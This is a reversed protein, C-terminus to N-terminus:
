FIGYTSDVELQIIAVREIVEHVRTYRVLITGIMLIHTTLFHSCNDCYYSLSLMTINFYGVDAIGASMQSSHNSTNYLVITMKNIIMNM